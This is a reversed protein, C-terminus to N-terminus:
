VEVNVPILHHAIWDLNDEPMEKNPLSLQKISFEIKYDAQLQQIAKLKDLVIKIGQTDTDPFLMLASNPTFVSYLDTDRLSSRIKNRIADIKAFADSDGIDRIVKEFNILEFALIQHTQEHRIALKNQWNIIQSFQLFPLLENTFLTAILGTNGTRVLQKGFTSLKYTYPNNIILDDIAHKSHCDLCQAQVDADVFLNDCSNCHQNELPRDYDVGIHRLTMLCNPCALTDLKKFNSQTGVHGCNFCHLSAQLAIDINNCSPCTDVYNLHGSHCSSCHRIRNVHQEKELWHKREITSLFQNVEFPEIKWCNLLPYTYLHNEKPTSLPVLTYSHLWLYSLLQYEKNVFPNLQLFSRNKQYKDIKGLAENGWLGNALYDSLLSEEEVLVLVLATSTNKRINQLLADQLSTDKSSPQEKGALAGDDKAFLSASIVMLDIMHNDDLKPLESLQNIVQFQPHWDQAVYEGLWYNVPTNTLSNM